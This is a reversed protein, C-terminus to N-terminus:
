SASAGAMGRACAAAAAAAACARDPGWLRWGGVQLMDDLFLSRGPRRERRGQVRRLWEPMSSFRGTHPREHLRHRVCWALMQLAQQLLLAQQLESQVGRQARSGTATSGAQQERPSFAISSGAMAGAGHIRALAHLTSCLTNAKSLENSLSTSIYKTLLADSKLAAQLKEESARLSSGAWEAVTSGDLLQAELADDSTLSRDGCM